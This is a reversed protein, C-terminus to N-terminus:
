PAFGIVGNPQVTADGAQNGNRVLLMVPGAALDYANGGAATPQLIRFPFGPQAVSQLTMAPPPQIAVGAAAVAQQWSLLGLENRELRVMTATPTLEPQWSGADLRFIGHALTGARLVGSSVHLSIVRAGSIALPPLLQPNNLAALFTTYIATPTAFWLSGDAVTTALVPDATPSILATTWAAAPSAYLGSLTGIFFNANGAAITTLRETQSAGFAKSLLRNDEKLWAASALSPWALRYAAAQSIARVFAGSAPDTALALGAASFAGSATTSGHAEWRGGNNAGVRRFVGKTTGVLLEGSAPALLCLPAANGTQASWDGIERWHNTASDFWYVGPDWQTQGGSKTPVQAAAYLIAGDTLVAVINSLTKGGALNGTQLTWGGAGLELIGADSAAIFKGAAEAFGFIGQGAAIGRSAWMPQSGNGLSLSNTARLAVDIMAEAALEFNAIYGHLYPYAQVVLWDTKARGLIKRMDWLVRAWVMGADYTELSDAVFTSPPFVNPAPLFDAGLIQDGRDLNWRGSWDGPNYAARAWPQNEEASGPREAAISRALYTAYGEHLARAFPNLSFPTDLPEPDLRWLLAHAFEHMVVEPDRAPNRIPGGPTSIGGGPDAQFRVTPPNAGWDFGTRNLSNTEVNFKPNGQLKSSPIGCADRLYKFIRVAHFAVTRADADGNALITGNVVFSNLLAKDLAGIDGNAAGSAAEGSTMFFDHALAITQWPDSLAEGTHMDIDVYWTEGDPTQIRWRSILHYAGDHPLIAVRRGEIPIPYSELTAAAGYDLKEHLLKGLSLESDKAFQLLEKLLEKLFPQAEDFWQGSELFPGRRYIWFSQLREAVPALATYWHAVDADLDRNPDQSPGILPELLDILPFLAALTVLAFSELARLRLLTPNLWTGPDLAPPQDAIPFYSSTIFAREDGVGEHVRLSGGIVRLGQYIQRWGFHRTIFDPRGQENDAVTELRLIPSPIFEQPFDLPLVNGFTPDAGFIAAAYLGKALQNQVEDRAKDDNERDLPIDLWTRLHAPLGTAPNRALRWPYVRMTKQDASIREYPHREQLKAVAGAAARLRELQVPANERWYVQTRLRIPPAQLRESDVSEARQDFFWDDPTPAAPDTSPEALPEEM